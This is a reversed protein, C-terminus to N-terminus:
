SRFSAAAENIFHFHGYYRSTCGMNAMCNEEGRGSFISVIDCGTFAHFFLLALWKEYSLTDAIKHVPIMRFNKGTGFTVWLSTLYSRQIFVYEALVLVDFDVSCVTVTKYQKATDTVHVMIRIGAEELLIKLIENRGTSWM